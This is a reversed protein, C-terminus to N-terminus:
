KKMLILCSNKEYNGAKFRVVYLGAPLEFRVRHEGASQIRQELVAVKEGSVSYVNVQVFMPSNIRYILMGNSSSFYIMPRMHYGRQDPQIVNSFDSLPRRWINGSDMTVIAYALAFLYGNGAALEGIRMSTLGTNVATWSNGTDTSRFVGNGETGAFINRSDSVALANVRTDILGTNVASWSNGNNTSLFVGGRMTGAFLNSDSAALANVITDTLGTNVITWSAGNNTTLLVGRNTGAFLNNGSVAFSYVSGWTTEKWSKGSDASSYVGSISPPIIGAFIKDSKTIFTSFALPPDSGVNWSACDDTSRYWLFVYKYTGAIIVNGIFGFANIGALLGAYSWSSGNDKSRFVGSFCMGAFLDSGNISFTNVGYTPTEMWQGYAVNTFFLFCVVPLVAVIKNM